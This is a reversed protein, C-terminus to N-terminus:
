RPRTARAIASRISRSPKTVAASRAACVPSHPSGIAVVYRPPGTYSVGGGIGALGPGVHGALGVAVGRAEDDGVAVAVDDGDDLAEEAREAGAHHRRPRPDHQLITPTVEREVGPVRAHQSRALAREVRQHGR